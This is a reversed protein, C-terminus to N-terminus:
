CDRLSGVNSSIPMFFVNRKEDVVHHFLTGNSFLVHDERPM